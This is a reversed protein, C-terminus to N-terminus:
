ASASNCVINLHHDAKKGKRYRCVKGLVGASSLRTRKDAKGKIGAVLVLKLPSLIALLIGAREPEFWTGM